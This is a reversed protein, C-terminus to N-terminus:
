PNLAAYEEASLLPGTSEVEVRLLWGAGYPDANVTSPDAVAADNVEVVTGTVPSYLESVSKTSEIEGIVAGATVTDGVAPLEVYVIDGLADAAVSTIGVTVPSAQDVWEHEVTYQLQAPLEATM